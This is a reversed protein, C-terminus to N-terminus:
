EATFLSARILRQKKALDKVESEVHVLHLAHGREVFVPAVDNGHHVHTFGILKKEGTM